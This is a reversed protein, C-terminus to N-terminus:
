KKDPATACCFAAGEGCKSCNHQMEDTTKGKVVTITGGCHECQHESGIEMWSMPPRGNAQASKYETIKVTKCAGCVMMVTSEPEIAKVQAQTRLQGLDRWYQPGPGATAAPVFIALAIALFGALGITKNTNQSTHMSTNEQKQM